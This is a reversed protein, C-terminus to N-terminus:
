SVTGPTLAMVALEIFRNPMKGTWQCKQGLQVIASCCTEFRPLGLPKLFTLGLAMVAIPDINDKTEDGTRPSIEMEHAQSFTALLNFSCSVAIGVRLTRFHTDFGNHNIGIFLCEQLCEDDSSGASEHYRTGTLVLFTRETGFAWTFPTYQSIWAM